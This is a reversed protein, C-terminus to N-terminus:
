GTGTLGCQEFGSDLLETFIETPVEPAYDKPELGLSALGDRWREPDVQIESPILVALDPELAVIEELRVDYLGGLRPLSEVEEPPILSFSM